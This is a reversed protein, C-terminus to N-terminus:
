TTTKLSYGSSNLVYRIYCYVGYRTGDITIWGTNIGSAWAYGNLPHWVPMGSDGSYSAYTAARWGGSYFTGSGDPDLNTYKLIGSGYGTTRGSKIRTYGVREHGEDTSYVKLTSPWNTFVTPSTTRGPVASYAYFDVAGGVSYYGGAGNGINVPKSDNHFVYPYTRDAYCHGATLGGDAGARNKAAFGLTCAEWSSASTPSATLLIGHGGRYPPVNPDNNRDAEDTMSTGAVFWVPVGASVGAGTRNATVPDDVALILRGREVDVAAVHVPGTKAVIPAYDIRDLAEDLMRETLRTSGVVLREPHKVTAALEVRVYEADRTVLVTVAGRAQDVYIAGIADGLGDARLRREVADADSPLEERRLREEAAEDPTFLAGADRIGTTYAPHAYLALVYARDARFGLSRRYAVDNDVLVDLPTGPAVRAAEIGPDLGGTLPVSESPAASPAFAVVQVVLAVVCVVVAGIRKV